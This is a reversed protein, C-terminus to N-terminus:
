GRCSGRRQSGRGVRGRCLCRRPFGRVVPCTDGDRAM